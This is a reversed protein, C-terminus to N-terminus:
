PNAKRWAAYQEMSMKAPDSVVGAAMGSVTRPPPPPPNRPNTATGTKALSAKVRGIEVAQQFPTM